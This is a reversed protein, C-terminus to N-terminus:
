QNLFLLKITIIELPQDGTGAFILRPSLYIKLCKCSGDGSTKQKPRSRSTKKAINIYNLHYYMFSLLFFIRSVLCLKSIIVKYLM